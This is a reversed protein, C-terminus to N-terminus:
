EMINAVEPSPPDNPVHIEFPVEDPKSLDFHAKLELEIGGTGKDTTTLNFGNRNMVNKLEIVIPSDSSDNLTGIWCINKLYDSSKVNLRPTLKQHSESYSGAGVAKETNALALQINNVTMEKVTATLTIEWSDIVMGDKYEGRAGDIDEFLNRYTPVASFTAGGSTAGLKGEESIPSGVTQNKVLIGADLQLKTATNKNFANLKAM